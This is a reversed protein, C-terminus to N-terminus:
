KCFATYYLPHANLAGTRNGMKITCVLPSAVHFLKQGKQQRQHHSQGDNAAALGLVLGIVLIGGILAAVGGNSDHGVRLEVRGSHIGGDGHLCVNLGSLAPPLLVADAHGREVGLGIVARVEQVIHGAGLLVVLGQQYIAGLEADAAVLGLPGALHLDDVGGVLHQLAGLDIVRQVHGGQQTGILQDGM